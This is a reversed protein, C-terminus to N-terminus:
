LTYGLCNILNKVSLHQIQLKKFRMKRGQNQSFICIWLNTEKEEHLAFYNKGQYTYMFKM